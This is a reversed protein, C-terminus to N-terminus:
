PPLLKFLFDDYPGKLTLQMLLRITYLHCKSTVILLGAKFILSVEEKFFINKFLINVSRNM